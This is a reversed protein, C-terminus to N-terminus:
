NGKKLSQHYAVFNDLMHTVSLRIDAGGLIIMGKGYPRALLYPFSEKDNLPATALVTWAAADEPVFGYAPTIEDTLGPLLNNPKSSWDGPAISQSRRGALPIGVPSTVKVKLSPDNFYQDLPINWYSVFVALAGNKVAPVLHKEWYDAPVKNPGSPHRFWFVDCTNTLALLNEQTTVLNIKWGAQTFDQNLAADNKSEREPAGSWWLVARDTRSAANFFLLATERDPFVGPAFDKRGGNHRLFRVQWSENPNPTQGLAAFPITMDAEWRDAEMRTKVQWGPHWQDERVGVSSYRYNQMVEHPNVAFHWTEGSLGSALELEVSDDDVVKGGRSGLNQCFEQVLRGRRLMARWFDLVVSRKANSPYAEGAAGLGSASPDRGDPTKGSTRVARAKVNKIQPDHCVWKILLAERTWALRVDTAYSKAAPTASGLEPVRCSSQAFDAAQALLPLNLRPVDASKMQYLDLWQKFLIKEREVAAAARDRVAQDQIKSLAQDAAALAATAEKRLNSTFFYSVVNLANGLIYTHIPMATWARDMSMYYDYMPAAAEGFATRCWDCLIDTMKQDPDWLLRAYLYISLRNQVNHVYVEPGLKPSLGVEPIMTIHGLKKGTKVADDILSLFPVFRVNESFIDYEYTYNGIPLGTAKWEGMATLMDANLKCDPHGYPHINCRMLSCYEVFASNRIRCKPVDCYGQYAITAFKLERFEKKLTDTVRNYFEFWATSVDMKACAQCRCYIQNDSPFISLIDLYPHKRIYETMQEAVIKEAEPNSLCINEAYRKGDVEAFYEPHRDFLSKDNLRANHASWMSYFGRSKDIAANREGGYSGHRHINIFNRAMWEKFILIDRWDGCLHFGRYPIAPQHNYKLAPLTWSTRAPIFEGGPGPWLWRVGLERQLFSYVAYLAGRPQNGALYLRGALTYVAVEEVNGPSLKLAGAQAQVEQNALDGIIIARSEPAKETSVVAFDAGSIKKLADRLEQAANTETQGAHPSLYIKWDTKGDQFFLGEAVAGQLVAFSVLLTMMLRAM